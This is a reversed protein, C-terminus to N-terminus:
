EHLIFNDIVHNHCRQLIQFLLTTVLLQPDKKGEEESPLPFFSMMGGYDGDDM